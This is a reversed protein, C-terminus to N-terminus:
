QTRLINLRGGIQVAPRPTFSFDEVCCGM